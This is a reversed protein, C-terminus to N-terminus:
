RVKREISQQQKQNPSQSVVQRRCDWSIMLHFAYGEDAFSLNSPNSIPRTQHLMHVAHNEVSLNVALDSRETRTMAKATSESESPQM